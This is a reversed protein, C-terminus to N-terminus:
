QCLKEYYNRVTRQMETTNTTVEGRENSIKNVQTRKRKKKILRTLPKNIKHVKEFFWNRSKNIGQITRKTEIDNLEERIKIIEKRRSM